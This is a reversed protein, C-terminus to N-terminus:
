EAGGLPSARRSREEWVGYGKGFLAGAAFLTVPVSAGGWDAVLCVLGACAGFIMYFRPTM